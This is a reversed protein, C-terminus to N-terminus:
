FHDIAEEISRRAHEFQEDNWPGRELRENVHRNFLNLIAEIQQCTEENIEDRERAYAHIHTFGLRIEEIKGENIADTTFTEYLSIVEPKLEVLKEYIQSRVTQRDERSYVHLPELIQSRVTQRDERDGRPFIHPWILFFFIVICFVAFAVAALVLFRNVKTKPQIPVRSSVLEAQSRQIYQSKTPESEKEEPRAQDQPLTQTFSQQPISKEKPQDINLAKFLQILGDDYNSSFDSRQIRRIRFPIKCDKHLVPIIQKGEDIAFSLEDRINDSVVSAPSLIILISRCAELAKEVAEDWREGSVIDLQDIWIDAGASRLDKALKLAFEADARSYSIFIKKKGAQKAM